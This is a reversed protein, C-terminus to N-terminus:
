GIGQRSPASLTYFYLEVREKVKASSSPPHTFANGPRKVKPFSGIGIKYLASRVGPGTQVPASFRAQVPIRDGPRVSRLSDNYKSGQAPGGKVGATCASEPRYCHSGYIQV